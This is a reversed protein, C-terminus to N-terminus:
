INFCPLGNYWFAQSAFLSSGERGPYFKPSRCRKFKERADTIRPPEWAKYVWGLFGMLDPDNVRKELAALLLQEAKPQEHNRVDGGHPLFAGTQDLTGTWSNFRPASIVSPVESQCQMGSSRYLCDRGILTFCCYRLGVRFNM